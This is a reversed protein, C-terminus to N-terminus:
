NATNSEIPNVPSILRAPLYGRDLFSREGWFSLFESQILLDEDGDGNWDTSRVQPGWFVYPIGELPIPEALAPQGANTTSLSLLAPQVVSGGILLDPKGDRNWDTFVLSETRQKMKTLEIGPELRREENQVTGRFLWLNRYTETVLLDLLGDQDFDVSAMVIRSGQLITFDKVQDLSNVPKPGVQLPEGTTLLLKHGPLFERTPSGPQKRHFYVEGQHTGWLLDPTGDGDWDTLITNLYPDGYGPGPHDIPSGDVTVRGLSKLQPSRIGGEICFLAGDRIM